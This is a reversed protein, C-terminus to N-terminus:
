QMLAKIVIFFLLIPTLEDSFNLFTGFNSLPCLEIISYVCFLSHGHIEVDQIFVDIVGELINNILIIIEFSGVYPEEM